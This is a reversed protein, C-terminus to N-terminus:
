GRSPLGCQQSRARSKAPCAAVSFTCRRPPYGLSLPAGVVVSPLVHVQAPFVGAKPASHDSENPAGGQRERADHHTGGTEGSRRPPRKTDHSRSSPARCSRSSWQHAGCRTADHHASRESCYPHPEAVSHPPCPPRLHPPPLDPPPLDSPAQAPSSPQLRTRAGLRTTELTM